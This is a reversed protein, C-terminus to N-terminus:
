SNCFPSVIKAIGANARSELGPSAAICEAFPVFHFGPRLGTQRSAVSSSLQEVEEQGEQGEEEEVEEVEM